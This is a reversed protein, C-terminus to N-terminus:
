TAASGSGVDNRGGRASGLCDAFDNGFEIAGEITEGDANRDGIARETVDGYGELLFDGNFFDVSGHLFGSFAFEFANESVGFVFDNGTIDKAVGETGDEIGGERHDDFIRSAGLVDLHNSPIVVFHGEGRM